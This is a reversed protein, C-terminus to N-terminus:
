FHLLIILSCLRESTGWSFVSILWRTILVEVARCMSCYVANFSSHVFCKVKGKRAGWHMTLIGVPEKKLELLLLHVGKRRIDSGALHM